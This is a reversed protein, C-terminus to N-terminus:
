VMNKMRGRFYSVINKLFYVWSDLISDPLKLLSICIMRSNDEGRGIIKVKFGLQRLSEIQSTTATLITFKANRKFWEDALKPLDREHERLDASEWGRYTNLMLALDFPIDPDKRFLHQIFVKYIRVGDRQVINHMSFKGKNLDVGYCFSLPFAKKIQWLVIADGCCIDIVSFDEGIFGYKILERIQRIIIAPRSCPNRVDYDSVGVRQIIKEQINEIPTRPWLYYDDPNLKSDVQELDELYKNYLFKM